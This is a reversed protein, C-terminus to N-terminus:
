RQSLEQELVAAIRLVAPTFGWGPGGLRQGATELVLRNAPKGTERDAFLERAVAAALQRAQKARLRKVRAPVAKCLEKPWGMATKVLNGGRAAQECDPLSRGYTVVHVRQGDWATLIVQALDYQKALRKAAAIPIRKPM